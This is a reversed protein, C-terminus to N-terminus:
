LVYRQWCGEEKSGCWRRALIKISEESKDIRGGSKGHFDATNKERKKTGFGQSLWLFLLVHILHLHYIQQLANSAIVNSKIKRNQSFSFFIWSLQMLAFVKIKYSLIICTKSWRLVNTRPDLWAAVILLCCWTSVHSALLAAALLLQTEAAQASVFLTKAVEGKRGQRLSCVEVCQLWM